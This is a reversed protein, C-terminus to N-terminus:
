RGGVKCYQVSHESQKALDVVCTLLFWSAGKLVRSDYPIRASIVYAPTLNKPECRPLWPLGSKLERHNVKRGRWGGFRSALGQLWGGALTSKVRTMAPWVAGNVM